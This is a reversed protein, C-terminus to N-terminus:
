FLQSNDFLYQILRKTDAGLGVYENNASLCTPYLFLLPLFKHAQQLTDRPETQPFIEGPLLLVKQSFFVRKPIIGIQHGCKNCKGLVTALQVEAPEETYRFNLPSSNEPVRGIVGNSCSPCKINKGYKHPLM